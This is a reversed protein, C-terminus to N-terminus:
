APVPPTRSRGGATSSACRAARPRAGPRPPEDLMATLEALDDGTDVDLMLTPVHEVAYPVGAAEAAAM